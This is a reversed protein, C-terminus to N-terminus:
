HIRQLFVVFFGDVAYINRTIAYDPYRLLIGANPHFDPNEGSAPPIAIKLIIFEPM